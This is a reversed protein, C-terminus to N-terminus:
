LKTRPEHFHPVPIQAWHHGSGVICAMKLQFYVRIITFTQGDPSVMVQWADTDKEGIGAGSIAENYSKLFNADTDDMPGCQGQQAHAATPSFAWRFGIIALGILVAFLLLQAIRSPWDAARGDSDEPSYIHGDGPDDPIMM